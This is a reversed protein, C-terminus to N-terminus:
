GLKIAKRSPNQKKKGKESPNKPKPDKAFLSKVVEEMTADVPEIVRPKKSIM